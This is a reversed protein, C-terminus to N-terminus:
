CCCFNMTCCNGDDDDDASGIIFLDEDVALENGSTKSRTSFETTCIVLVLVFGLSIIILFPTGALPLLM